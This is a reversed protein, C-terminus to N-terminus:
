MSMMIIMVIMMMMMTMMLKMVVMLEIFSVMVDFEDWCRRVLCVIEMCKFSMRREKELQDEDWYM